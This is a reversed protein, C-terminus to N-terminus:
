YIMQMTEFHFHKLIRYFHLPRGTYKLNLKLKYQINQLINWENHRNEWFRLYQKEGNNNLKNSWLNFAITFKQNLYMNFTVRISSKNFTCISLESTNFEARAAARVARMASPQSSLYSSIVSNIETCLNGRAVKPLCQHSITKPSWRIARCCAARKNKLTVVSGDDWFNLITFCFHNTKHECKRPIMLHYM